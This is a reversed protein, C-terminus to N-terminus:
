PTEQTLTEPRPLARAHPVPDEAERTWAPNEAAIQRTRRVRAVAERQHHALWSRMYSTTKQETVYFVWGPHKEPCYACDYTPGSVLVVVAHRRWWLWGRTLRALTCEDNLFTVRM